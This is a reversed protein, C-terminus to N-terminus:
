LAYSMGHFDGWKHVHPNALELLSPQQDSTIISDLQKFDLNDDLLAKKLKTGVEDLEDILHPPCAECYERIRLFEV